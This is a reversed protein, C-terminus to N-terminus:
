AAAARLCSGVRVPDASREACHFVNHGIVIAAGLVFEALSLGRNMPAQAQDDPSM